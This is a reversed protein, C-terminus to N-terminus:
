LLFAAILQRIFDAAFMLLSEVIPMLLDILTQLDPPM